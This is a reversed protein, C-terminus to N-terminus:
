SSLDSRREMLSRHSRSCASRPSKRRTTGAARFSILGCSLWHIANATPSVPTITESSEYDLERIESGGGITVTQVIVAERMVRRKGAVASVMWVVPWAIVYVVLLSLIPSVALPFAFKNGLAAWQFKSNGFAM